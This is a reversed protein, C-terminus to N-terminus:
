TINQESKVAKEMIKSEIERVKFKVNKHVMGHSKVSTRSFSQYLCINCEYRVIGQHISSDHRRLLFKHDTSYDCEKCSFRNINRKKKEERQDCKEHFEKIQCKKCDITKVKFDMGGHNNRGHSKVSQKFYSAYKCLSCRFKVIGLHLFSKHTKLNKLNETSYECESCKFQGHNKRKRLKKVHFALTDHYNQGHSQVSHKYYSKYPCLNCTFRVMNGHMSAKHKILSSQLKTSYNSEECHYKKTSKKTPNKKEKMVTVENKESSRFKKCDITKVNFDMGGHNNRGHSKVSQKFYSAYNCLSCSFRLVGLHIFSTHTKLNKLSNTSYDCESCKFQGVKRRRRKKSRHVSSIHTRLYIPDETSFGCENCYFNDKYTEHKIERREYSKKVNKEPAMRQCEGHPEGLRCYRCDIKTVSAKHDKHNNRSHKEVSLKYYSNYDCLDCGFRLVKRHVSEKHMILNKPINTAYECEGCKEKVETLTDPKSQEPPQSIFGFLATFVHQDALHRSLALETQSSYGCETCDFM